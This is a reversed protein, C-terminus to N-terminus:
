LNYAANEAEVSSMDYVKVTDIQTLKVKYLEENLLYFCNIINEPSGIKLKEMFADYDKEPWRKKLMPQIVYFLSALRARVIYLEGARGELEAKQYVEIAEILDNWRQLILVRVIDWAPRGETAGTDKFDGM